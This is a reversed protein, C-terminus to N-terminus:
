ANGFGYIRRANGCLMAERAAADVGEFAREISARSHPWDASIHPYDTSWLMREVGIEDRHTIAYRDTIFAFNVHREVYESPLQALGFKRVPDLRKYNNDIQEKFYPVWGCDVEAFTCALKPFRDFVGAFIMQVIRNPADFFRGYGPLAIKHASPAERSMSVHISFAAGTSAFREWAADDEPAVDLTGNPFCGVTFGRIGPRGWVRDFEAVAAKAGCNPLMALGAFRAPAHEVYESLWDNYARVCALHLEDDRYSVISQALRPTPYLVSADIGDLDMEETRAKPDWGGRRIDEFRCWAHMEEPALGACANMGFNIPDKSGELVWAEGQEFKEIHPVRDRLKAPARSLWLDPPENVHSDSCIIRYDM